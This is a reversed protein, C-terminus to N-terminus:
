PSVCHDKSDTFLQEPTYAYRKLAEFSAQSLLPNDLKILRRQQCRIQQVIQGYHQQFHQQLFGSQWGMEMGKQIREALIPYRRSVFFLSPQPYYLLLHPEMELDDAHPSALDSQVESISRLFCDFRLQRTMDFLLSYIPNTEVQLGNSRLIEVDPWHAGQGIVLKAQRWDDLTRVDDFKHKQNKAILCVRFGLLGQTLPFYIPILEREREPSPAFAALHLSTGDILQQHSRGQVMEYSYSIEVHGYKEATVRLAYELLLRHPSDEFHDPVIILSPESAHTSSVLQMLCLLAYLVNNRSM